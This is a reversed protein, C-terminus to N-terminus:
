RRGPLLRCDDDTPLIHKILIEHESVVIHDILLRIVDQRLQPTPYALALNIQRCFAAFDILMQAKFSLHLQSRDLLALRQEISQREHDLRQKRKAFETKDIQEEQFLDLIRQWQRELTRHRTRLRNQEDPTSEAVGSQQQWADALLTPNQLLETVAQWVLTEILSGDISCRHAAVTPDLKGSQYPCAYTTSHTATRGVLSHGCHSCVLLSRLLYFHKHNNRQAFKHNMALREQAHLWIEESIIPPVTVPIWEEPPRPVRAAVRKPGRGHRKAQGVVEHDAQTQNYYAKGTYDRQKLIAQVTSFQWQQGRAVAQTGAERLRQLLQQITLEENVYWDYMQRVVRAEAENLEWHGGNSEGMPIYRYGYPAVPSVMEGQRIRYLKGRRLRESILAREYEAFLGQVGLLLQGQPSEEIQPQNVFIVKVGVRQLEDLLMWQHAYHRALRDPSLCLVVSFLGESAQDRLKDLGPRALQGGSVAQDMFYLSKNLAYGQGEAYSEIAAVQSEITAEQEQQPTSVRGYLAAITKM